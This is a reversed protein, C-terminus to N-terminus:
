NGGQLEILKDLYHRAKKLDEVGNKDRWRALYKLANGALFGGFAEPTMWAQMVHWPQYAGKKIYHDGGPQHSDAGGAIPAGAPEQAAATADARSAWNVKRLGSGVCEACPNQWSPVDDHRCDRCSRETASM